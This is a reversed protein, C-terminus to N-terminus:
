IGARRAEEAAEPYVAAIRALREERESHGHTRLITVLNPGEALRGEEFRDYFEWLDRLLEATPRHAVIAVRVPRSSHITAVREPFRWIEFPSKGDTDHVEYEAAM